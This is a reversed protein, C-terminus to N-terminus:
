TLEKRALSADSKNELTKSPIIKLIDEKRFPKTIFAKAGLKEADEADTLNTFGTMLIVPLEPFRDKVWKLLDVGDLKPMQVDSIVLDFECFELIEQAHAGHEAESVTYGENELTRALITRFFPDDDVVLIRFLPNSTSM